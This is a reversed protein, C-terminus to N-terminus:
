ILFKVGVGPLFVTKHLCVTPAHANVFGVIDLSHYVEVASLFFKGCLKVFNQRSGCNMLAALSLVVFDGLCLINPEALILVVVLGGM